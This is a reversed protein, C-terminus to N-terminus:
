RRSAQMARLTLQLSEARTQSALNRAAAKVPWVGASLSSHLQQSESLCCPNLSLQDANLNHDSCM